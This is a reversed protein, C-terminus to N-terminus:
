ARDAPFALVQRIHAAGLALMVLRDVGLAVGACDPLGSRLAALLRRDPRPVPRGAARRRRRDERFRRAQELPDALEHFGNALELGEVFLEFREATSPDDPRLRALAAQSAPYGCVFSLRGRGLRPAVTLGMLLDLLGDRDLDEPAAGAAEASAVRLEALSASFPDLGAYRAFATRYELREVPAPGLIEAVLAAVEDMLAGTDFGPRYWELLTFEPNHFRGQEGARLARGLQYISGAGAALLRKMAYEPSTQLWRSGLGPVEVPVGDIQPDTVGCAALLPTEM